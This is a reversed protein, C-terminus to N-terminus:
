RYRRTAKLVMSFVGSEDRAVVLSVHGNIAVDAQLLQQGTTNADTAYTLTVNRGLREQVIIRSTSNGFPGLYNPDVKVSGAGFLKQVRNSVTANLAGGLLADTAPGSLSQEQQETYIRQQSETRGLALLAVVDAEPLPPDSRYTVALREPTGRLGLKIDYEEVRATASLDINPDIRLPNAFTVDGHELEYRTGAIVASGETISVRGLLAPSALTGRLRLDVDGGLKAFANQFELQSSSIVHVDLRIHNSPSDPPTIKTRVSNVEAALAAFDFDPNATFRTILVDGSLALNAPTGQLRLKTDALSSIGEPYRIRVQTGTVTLNAYIGEQYALYGGVSLLGGGSMATLSRVELRNQNFELTGHVQSLGNPVDELSLSGNQFDIRGRLGPDRLPGHAELQFTAAGAATVDPDITQILKLNVSGSATLDLRRDGTLALSGQANLDTGEGTIHLPEIQIRGGALTARAAGVSKLHVTELTAALEEIRAEGRLEEPKALPGDLTVTGALKSEGELAELHALKLIAGLDIRSLDFRAHTQYSNGLATTASLRIEAGALQATGDYVVSRGSTTATLDITGLREGGLAFRSVTAHGEIRPDAATGSGRLHFNLSGGAAVARRGLGEIRALDIESGQAELEFRSSQPDWAGSGTLSGDAARLSFSDVKVSRNALSGQVRVREVPEGYLSGSAMEVSGSARPAQLPGDATFRADLVGQVPFEGPLQAAFFPRLEEANVKAAEVRLHLVSNGDFVPERGAAAELTGSFTLRQSGRQLLGHDIAIREPAYSGDAEAADMHLFRPRLLGAQASPEDTAAPMELALGAAKLSGALRPRLLSGSWTGRFGAQGTLAVPLAAAGARSGRKLGLDRLITDFEGLNRSAFDVVIATPSTMPFAGLRGHAELRSAPLNLEFQRLAVAGDSQTYTAEVVGTAPAEGSVAAPSPTLRLQASVSTTRYDGKFWTAGAPGNVRADLGLRRFPPQGVMDLITDLAVDHFEATVKGDVPFEIANAANRAPRGRPLSQPAAKASAPRLWHALDVTGEISGGQHLRAVIGTISLLNADARVHATLGVGRESVGTGIYAGNDVRVAGDILFQGPQGTAGLDLHAIGEPAFPYGTVPDLLRMDLDGVARARWRPRSFNDLEGNLELSRDPIGRGFATLRLSRVYLASRELDVTALIRGHVAPYPARAASRALTLDTAGAEIRYSEVSGLGPLRHLIRLSLNSVTFDLPLRRNQFDFAAARNDFDLVGQEVVLRSVGLRFLTDLVDRRAKRRAALHPQNTAGDPYVILHFAPHVVELDRLVLRPSLLGLISMRARLREVQAYPAEGPAERGHIVLGGAEAELDLLNWRFFAIEVRGGTAAELQSVMRRRVMNQFGDTSALLYGGVLALILLLAM